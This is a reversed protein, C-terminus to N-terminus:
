EAAAVGNGVRLLSLERGSGDEARLPNAPDTRWEWAEDTEVALLYHHEGPPLTLELVWREGGRWQYPHRLPDWGNWDGAAFVAIADGRYELTVTADSGNWTAIPEHGEPACASGALAFLVLLVGAINRSGAAPRSSTPAIM